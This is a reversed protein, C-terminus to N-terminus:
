DLLRLVLGAALAWMMLAILSDLVRWAAPRAFVGQLLRAGYGLLTFWVGSAMAAGVVFWPQAASTEM